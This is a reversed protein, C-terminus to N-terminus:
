IWCTAARAPRWRRRRSCVPRSRGRRDVSEGAALNELHLGPISGLDGPASAEGSAALIAVDAHSRVLIRSPHVPPASAAAAMEDFALPEVPGLLSDGNLVERRELREISPHFFLERRRQLRRRSAARGHATNRFM